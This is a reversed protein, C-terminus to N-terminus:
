SAAAVLITGVTEEICNWADSTGDDDDNDDDDDDEDGAHVPKNGTVCLSCVDIICENTGNKNLQISRDVIVLSILWDDANVNHANYM